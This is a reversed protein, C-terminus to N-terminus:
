SNRTAEPGISPSNAVCARRPGRQGFRFVDVGWLVQISDATAEQPAVDDEAELRVREDSSAMEVVTQLQGLVEVNVPKREEELVAVFEHDFEQFLAPIRVADLVLQLDVECRKMNISCADDDVVNQVRCEVLHESFAVGTEFDHAYLVQTRSRPMGVPDHIGQIRSRFYGVGPQRRTRSIRGEAALEM